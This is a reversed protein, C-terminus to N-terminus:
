STYSNISSICPPNFDWWRVDRGYWAGVSARSPVARPKPSETVKEDKEKNGEFGDTYRKKGM